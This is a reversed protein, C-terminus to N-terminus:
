NKSNLIANLNEGFSEHVKSAQACIWDHMDKNDKELEEIRNLMRNYDEKSILLYQEGYIDQM